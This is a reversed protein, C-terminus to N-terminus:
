GVGGGRWFDPAPHRTEDLFAQYEERTVPTRALRFAPLWVEHRPNENDRPGGGMWFWGGPVLVWDLTLSWQMFRLFVAFSLDGYSHRGFIHHTIPSRRTCPITRRLTGPGRNEDRRAPPRPVRRSRRAGVRRAAGARRARGPSGRGAPSMRQRGNAAALKSQTSFKKVENPYKSFSRSFKWTRSSITRTSTGSPRNRISMMFLALVRRWRCARSTWRM